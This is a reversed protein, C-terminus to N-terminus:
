KLSDGQPAGLEQVCIAGAHFLSCIPCLKRRIGPRSPLNLKPPMDFSIVPWSKEPTM